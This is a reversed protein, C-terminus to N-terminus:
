TTSPYGKVEVLLLHARRRADIDPRHGRTATDAQAVVAWGSAELYAVLARQVAGEWPWSEDSPAAIGAAPDNSAM